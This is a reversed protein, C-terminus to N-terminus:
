KRVGFVQAWYSGVKAIGMEKFSPNMINKCHGDSNLWGQIVAEESKYGKAINEGYTSWAYGRRKIRDGPSSKDSGTHEFFDNNFMDLCHDGAALELTDNWKVPNAPAFYGNVGCDCGEARVANVLELLRTKNIKETEPNVPANPDKPEDPKTTTTDIPTVVQNENNQDDHTDKKCGILFFIGSLLLILSAIKLKNM